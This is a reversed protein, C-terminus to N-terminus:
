RVGLQTEHFQIREEQYVLAADVTTADIVPYRAQRDAIALEAARNRLRRVEIDRPTDPRWSARQLDIIRRGMGM